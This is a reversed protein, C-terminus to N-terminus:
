LHARDDFFTQIVIYSLPAAWYVAIGIFPFGALGLLSGVIYIALGIGIRQFGIRVFRQSLGEGRLDRTIHIWIWILFVEIGIMNLGYLTVAEGSHPYSGLVSAAFPLLAVFMLFFNNVWLLLRDIREAGEVMLHHAVWFVGVALFTLVYAGLRPLQALIAHHLKDPAINSSIHLELVLLTIAIAFVGDSFAEFRTKSVSSSKHQM